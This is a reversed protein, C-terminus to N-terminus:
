YPISMINLLESPSFGTFEHVTGYLCRSIQERTRGLNTTLYKVLVVIHEPSGLLKFSQVASSDTTRYRAIPLM